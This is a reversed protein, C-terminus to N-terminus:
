AIFSPAVIDSQPLPRQVLIRPPVVVDSQPVFGRHGRVSTRVASAVVAVAVLVGPILCAALMLPNGIPYSARLVPSRVGHYSIAMVATLACVALLIYAVARAATRNLILGLAFAWFIQIGLLITGGLAYDPADSWFVGAFSWIGFAVLMLQAASVMGLHTKKKAPEATPSPQDTTQEITIDEASEEEGARPRVALTFGLTLM